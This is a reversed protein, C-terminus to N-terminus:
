WLAGDCFKLTLILHADDCSVVCDSHPSNGDALADAVFPYDRTSQSRAFAHRGVTRLEQTISRDHGGCRERRPLLPLTAFNKIARGITAITMEITVTITPRTAIVPNGSACNGLMTGGCIWILVVNGPASARVFSCDTAVGSSCFILPTSWM